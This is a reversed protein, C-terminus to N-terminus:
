GNDGTAHQFYLPEPISQHKPAAFSSSATSLLIVAAAALLTIKTFM